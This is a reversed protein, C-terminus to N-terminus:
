DNIKENGFVAMKGPFRGRFKKRNVSKNGANTQNEDSFEQPQYDLPLFIVIVLASGGAAINMM